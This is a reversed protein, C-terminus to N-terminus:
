GVLFDSDSHCIGRFLLNAIADHLFLTRVKFYYIRDPDARSQNSLYINNAPEWQNEDWPGDPDRARYIIYSTVIGNPRAPPLWYLSVKIQYNIVNLPDRSYTM